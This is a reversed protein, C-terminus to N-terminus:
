RDADASVVGKVRGDSEVNRCQIHFMSTGLHKLVKPLTRQQRLVVECGECEPVSGAMGASIYKMM